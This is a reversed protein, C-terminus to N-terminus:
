TFLLKQEKIPVIPFPMNTLEHCCILLNVLLVPSVLFNFFGFRINYSHREGNTHLGATLQNRYFHYPEFFSGLNGFHVAGPIRLTTLRLCTVKCSGIFEDYYLKEFETPLVNVIPEILRLHNFWDGRGKLLFSSKHSACIYDHQKSIRLYESFPM